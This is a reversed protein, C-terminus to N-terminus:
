MEVTSICQLGENVIKTKYFVEGIERDQLSDRLKNFDIRNPEALIGVVTGSHAVNIGLAGADQSVKWIRDFAPKYLIRQNSFASITAGRAILGPNKRRIGEEVLRLAEKVEGERQRNIQTLERKNFELTDVKGGLDIVLIEMDPAKGLFKFLAGKRHDFITIGEFLTGDTPEISLAIKAIERPAIKEGLAHAIALSAAGIDATSSAMGKGLPIKSNIKFNAGLSEKGFFKLTKKIAEKTKWKNFPKAIEGKGNLVVRVQSHLNIPCSIHFSEGNLTGQVLEGCSGPAKAIGIM